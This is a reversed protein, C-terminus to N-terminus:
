VRNGRRHAPRDDAPQHDHHAPYAAGIRADGSGLLDFDRIARSDGKTLIEVFLGYRHLIQIAQRTIGQETELPQYPDTTFSLLVRKGSGKLALADKELQKLGDVRVTVASHFRERDTFTADPAFCYKCGHECGKYLNAALPAYERARGKPEYIISM